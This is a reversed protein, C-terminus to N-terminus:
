SATDRQRVLAARRVEQLAQDLHELAREVCRVAQGSDIRALQAHLIMGATFIGNVVSGDRDDASETGDDRRM